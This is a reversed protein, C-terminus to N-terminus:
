AAPRRRWVEVVDYPGPECGGATFEAALRFATAPDEILCHRNVAIREAKHNCSLPSCEFTSGASRSVVDLGLREFSPSLPEIQLAPLDVPAPEGGAFTAPFLKYAYLDFEDWEAEPVVSFALAPSDYVWMDNHQWQDVWDVPADSMCTSVSCVEEVGAAHLWEPRPATRKPFYGILIPNV